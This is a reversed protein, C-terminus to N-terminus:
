KISFNVQCGPKPLVDTLTGSYFHKQCDQLLWQGIWTSTITPSKMTGHPKRREVPLWGYQVMESSLKVQFYTARHELM